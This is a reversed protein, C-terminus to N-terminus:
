LMEAFSIIDFIRNMLGKADVGEMAEGDVLFSPVISLSIMDLFDLDSDESAVTFFCAIDLVDDLGMANVVSLVDDSSYLADADIPIYEAIMYPLYAEMMGDLLVKRVEDLSTEAYKFYSLVGSEDLDLVISFSGDDVKEGDIAMGMSSLTIKMLHPSFVEMGVSLTGDIAVSDSHGGYSYLVDVNSYTIDILITGDEATSRVFGINGGAYLVESEEIGSFAFFADLVGQSFTVLNKSLLSSLSVGSAKVEKVLPLLYVMSPDVEGLDHNEVADGSYLDLPSLLSVLVLPEPSAFVPFVVSSLILLLIAPKKM